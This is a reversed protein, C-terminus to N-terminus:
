KDLAERVAALADEVGNDKAWQEWIPVVIKLSNTVDSSKGDILEVGKDAIDQRVSDEEGIIAEIAKPGHEAGIQTITDQVSQPLSEFEDRNAILIGPFTGLTSLYGWDLSDDWGLAHANIGATVLATVLNQDLATAVEGPLITTPHAGLETLFTAQSATSSRINLGSLDEISSPAEGKGWVVQPPYAYTYLPVLGYKDYDAQLFPQLAEMALNFEDVDSILYPLGFLGITPSEGTQLVGFEGGQLRDAGTTTLLESLEYPVEGATRLTITVLGDTEENVRDAFEQQLNAVTVGASPNPLAVVLMDWNVPQADATDDVPAASCGGLAFAVVTLISATAFAARTAIRHRAM